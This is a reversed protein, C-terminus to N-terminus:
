EGSGSKWLKEYYGDLFDLAPKNPVPIVEIKDGFGMAMDEKVHYAPWKPLAKGNPDGTAAFNYWYSSVTDALKKDYDTWPTETANKHSPYDFVYAIEAGHQAGMKASIGAPVHSFYYVYAKSKGTKTQMRAWTRMEWGFTQDRMSHAQANYAEEDSNFPYLALFKDADTKYRTAAMKRFSDGTVNRTFLTGEDNNSGILTPVDNQKGQSYITEVEDPLFYGDVVPGGYGNPAKNLDDASDKRLDALSTAKMASEFKLGAEEADKLNKTPAFEASSEGIARQFLGKALPSATLYNVSWSGASEGFITVRKPDGGFAAINKQVWELAAVQDLFGYNGSANRDSEKSLEPLAFFGFVGMRYNISVVVAGKAALGEGNYISGTGSTLAGGHIWVMVPRKERASKAASYVNLYLCDESMQNEPRIGGNPPFGGGNAQRQMCNSGFKDAARVGEWKAAPKPAHWRLDGVPPAAFPIGEYIRIESNLGNTGTLQGADTKVPETMAASLPTVSLLIPAVVALVTARLTLMPNMM